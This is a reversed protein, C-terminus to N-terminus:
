SIELLVYGTTEIAVYGSADELEIYYATPVTQVGVIVESGGVDTGWGNAVNAVVGDATGPYVNAFNAVGSFGVGM